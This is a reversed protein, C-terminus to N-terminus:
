IAPDDAWAREGPERPERPERGCLSCALYTVLRHGDYDQLVLLQGGCHPEPCHALRRRIAQM